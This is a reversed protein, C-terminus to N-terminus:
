IHEQLSNQSFGLNMEDARAFITDRVVLRNYVTPKDEGITFVFRNRFIYDERLIYPDTIIENINLEVM